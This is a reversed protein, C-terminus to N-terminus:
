IINGIGLRYDSDFLDKIKRLENLGDSGVMKAFYKKKIKGIGHEASITGGWKLIQCVMHDYVQKADGMQSEKPLLNIHLHNDGLHGFVVYDLGSTKLTDQYFEMMSIFHNDSVAMDTGLKVRSARSNEENVIIPVDHRFNHFLQIDKENQAFWSNELIVNEETLFEFWNNLTLDYDKLHAIDQEFFLAARSHIPINTHKVKLRELSNHEFYEM